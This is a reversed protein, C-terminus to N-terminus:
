NYASTIRFSFELTQAKLHASHYIILQALEFLSLNPMPYKLNQQVHSVLKYVQLPEILYLQIKYTFVQYDCTVSYICLMSCVLQNRIHMLFLLHPLGCFRVPPEHHVSGQWSSRADQLLPDILPLLFQAVQSDSSQIFECYCIYNFMSLVVPVFIMAWDWFSAVRTTPLTAIQHWRLYLLNCFLMFGAKVLQYEDEYSTNTRCVTRM